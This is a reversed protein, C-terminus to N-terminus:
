NERLDGHERATEIEHSIKPREAKLRVLEDKLATHGDPTMPVKEMAPRPLTAGAPFCSALGCEAGPLRSGLGHSGTGGAGRPDREFKRTEQHERQHCASHKSM